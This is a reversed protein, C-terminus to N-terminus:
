NGLKGTVGRIGHLMGKMMMGLEGTRHRTFVGYLLFLAALWRANFLIWKLSSYNRRSLLITNRFIYYYRFAKHRPLRRWRGIWFRAASEGLRHELVAGCAGFIRYGKSRARLCWETDVQDIFLDEEMGGVAEIVDLPILSGSSILMDCEVASSPDRCSGHRLTLWGIKAFRSLVDSEPLRVRPGVCGVKHGEARLRELVTRLCEVMGKQPVSDQDLLLVNEYGLERAHATGENQAAGIGKNIGLTKVELSRYVARLPAEDLQTSGNDVIVIGDVQSALASLTVSLAETRPQFTVIVACTRKGSM